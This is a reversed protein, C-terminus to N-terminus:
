SSSVFDWLALTSSMSILSICTVEANITAAFLKITIHLWKTFASYRLISIVWKIKHYSFDALVFQSFLSKNESVSTIRGILNLFQNVQSWKNETCWWLTEVSWAAAISKLGRHNKKARCRGRYNANDRGARFIYFYFLPSSTKWKINSRQLKFCSM